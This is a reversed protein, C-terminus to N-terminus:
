SIIIYHNYHSYHFSGFGQNYIYNQFDGIMMITMINIINNYKM